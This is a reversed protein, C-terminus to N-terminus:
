AARLSFRHGFRKMFERYARETEVPDLGSWSSHKWALELQERKLEYPFRDGLTRFWLMAQHDIESSRIKTTVVPGLNFPVLLRYLYDKHTWYEDWTLNGWEFAERM